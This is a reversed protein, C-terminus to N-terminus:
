QGYFPHVHPLVQEWRQQQQAVKTTDAVFFPTDNELGRPNISFHQLRTYILNDIAQKTSPALSGM